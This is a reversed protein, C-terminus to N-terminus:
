DSEVIYFYPRKERNVMSPEIGLIRCQEIYDAETTIGAIRIPQKISEKGRRTFGERVDGVKRKHWSALILKGRANIVLAVSEEWTRRTGTSRKAMTM